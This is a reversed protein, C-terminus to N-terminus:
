QRSIYERLACVCKRGYKMHSYDEHKVIFQVTGFNIDIKLRRLYVLIREMISYDRKMDSM